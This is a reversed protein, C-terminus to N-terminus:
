CKFDRSSGQCFYSSLPCVPMGSIQSRSIKRCIHKGLNKKLSLIENYLITLKLLKKDIAFFCMCMCVSLLKKTSPKKNLSYILLTIHYILRQNMQFELLFLVNLRCPSYKLDQFLLSCNFRQLNFGILLQNNQIMFCSFTYTLTSSNMHFRHIQLPM